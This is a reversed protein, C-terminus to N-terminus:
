VLEYARASRKLTPHEYELFYAVSDAVHTLMKNATKDMENTGEKPSVDEFDIVLHPCRASDVLM